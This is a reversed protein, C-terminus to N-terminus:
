QNQYQKQHKQDQRGVKKSDEAKVTNEAKAM